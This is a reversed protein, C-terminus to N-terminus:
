LIPFISFKGKTETELDQIAKTVLETETPPASPAGVGEGRFVSSPLGRVNLLDGELQTILDKQDKVTRYAESCNRQLEDYKGSIYVDYVLM